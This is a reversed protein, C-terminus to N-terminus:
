STNELFTYAQPQKLLDQVVYDEHSGAAELAWARISVTTM